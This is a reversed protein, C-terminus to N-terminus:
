SATAEPAPAITSHVVLPIRGGFDYCQLRETKSRRITRVLRGTLVDGRKAWALTSNLLRERPDALFRWGRAM